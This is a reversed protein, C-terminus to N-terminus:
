LWNKPDYPSRAYFASPGLGVPKYAYNPQFANLLKNGDVIARPTVPLKAGQMANGFPGRTSQAGFMFPTVGLVPMSFRRM